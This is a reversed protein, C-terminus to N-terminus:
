RFAGARYLRWAHAGLALLPYRHERWTSATEIGSHRQIKWLVYDVGGEFILANRLIRLLFRAKGHVQRLRWGLRAGHHRWGPLDVTIARSDSADSTVVPYPLTALALQTAHEYREPASDWLAEIVGPREPRLEARYSERWIATWLEHSTFRPAVLPVGSAVTTVIARALADAVARRVREDAAYVLACPQAFRAWFYPELTQASTGQALDHLSLVAYKARVVRAGARVELYFVNPPLLHNLLALVPNRYASRYSDVLLYLDVVGDHDDGGRLCSGYFLVGRVASGYLERLRAILARTGASPPQELEETVLQALDTAAIV